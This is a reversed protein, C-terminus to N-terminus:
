HCGVNKVLEPCFVPLCKKQNKEPIMLMINKAKELSTEKKVFIAEMEQKDWMLGYKHKLIHQLFM